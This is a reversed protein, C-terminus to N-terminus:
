IEHLGDDDMHALYSSLNPPPSKVYAEYAVIAYRDVTWIHNPAAVDFNLLKAVPSQPAWHIM